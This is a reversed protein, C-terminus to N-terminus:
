RRRLTLTMRLAQETQMNYAWKKPQGQKSSIEVMKAWRLIHSRSLFLISIKVSRQNTAVEKERTSKETEVKTPLKKLQTM